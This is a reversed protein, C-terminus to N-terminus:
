GEDEFGFVPSGGVILVTQNVGRSTKIVTKASM